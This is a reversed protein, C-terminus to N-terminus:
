VTPAHAARIKERVSTPQPQGDVITVDFAYVATVESREIASLALKEFESMAEKDAAVDADALHEIWTGDAKLYVVAGTRLVNATVVSPM